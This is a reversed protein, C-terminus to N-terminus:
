KGKGGSYPKEQALLKEFYDIFWKAREPGAIVRESTPASLDLIQKGVVDIRVTEDISNMREVVLKLVMATDAFALYWDPANKSAPGQTELASCEKALRATHAHAVELRNQLTKVELRADFLKADLVPTSASKDSVASTAGPQEALHKLLMGRYPSGKRTLTTRHLGVADSVDAVLASIDAFALRRKKLTALERSIRAKNESIKSGRHAAFNDTGRRVGM